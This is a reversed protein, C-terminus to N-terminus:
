KNLDILICVYESFHCFMFLRHQLGIDGTEEITPRSLILQSSCHRKRM